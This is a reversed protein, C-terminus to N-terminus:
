REDFPPREGHLMRSSRLNFKAVYRLYQAVDGPPTGKELNDAADIMVKGARENVDALSHVCNKFTPKEQATAPSATSATM